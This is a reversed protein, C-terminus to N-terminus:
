ELQRYSSHRKKLIFLFIRSMKCLINSNLEKSNDANSKQCVSSDTAGPDKSKLSSEAYGYLCVESVGLNSNSTNKSSEKDHKLERLQNNLNHQNTILNLDVSSPSSNIKTEICSHKSSFRKAMQPNISSIWPLKNELYHTTTLVKNGGLESGGVIDSPRGESVNHIPKEEQGISCQYTEMNRCHKKVTNVGNEYLPIVQTKELWSCGGKENSKGDGYILQKSNNVTHNTIATDFSLDTRNRQDLLFDDKLDLYKSFREENELIAAYTTLMNYAQWQGEKYAHEEANLLLRYDLKSIDAGNTM